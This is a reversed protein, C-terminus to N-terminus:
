IYIIEREGGEGGGEGWRWVGKGGEGRGLYAKHNIHVNLVMNVKFLTQVMNVKFLTYEYVTIMTEVFLLYTVM